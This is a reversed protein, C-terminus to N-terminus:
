RLWGREGALRIAEPRTRCNLRELLRAVHMEVTRVSLSLHDAIEKSTAGRALLTLVEVQRPTLDATGTSPRATLQSALPRLGIRAAEKAAESARRPPQLGRAHALAVTTALVSWSELPLGIEEYRSAARTFTDLAKVDHRELALAVGDLAEAAAQAEPFPNTQIVRQVIDRCDVLRNADEQRGYFMGAFLLPPLVQNVDESEKWIARIEDYATTAKEMERRDEHWCALGWLVAFELGVFQAERSERLAIDLHPRVSRRQGRFQAILGLATHAIAALLPHPDNEALLAKATKVSEHYDGSRFSAYALCGLCTHEGSLGNARCYQIAVWQHKQEALYDGAYDAINARRRYALATQEPLSHEIALQLSRDVCEAARKGEGAMAALLGEYGALESELAPDDLTELCTLAHSLAKKAATIRSRTALLDAYAMWQRARERPPLMKEALEAAERLWQTVQAIDSSLAALQRLTEVHLAANAEARAHAELERWARVAAETLRANMACRATERLFDVRAEPSENWPWLALAAEAHSLAPAFQGAACAQKAALCWCRRAEASAHAAAYHRAAEPPALHLSEAARALARHHGARESWRLEAVITEPDIRPALRVDGGNGAPVLTEEELLAHLTEDPIGSARLWALSCSTGLLCARQLASEPNIASM